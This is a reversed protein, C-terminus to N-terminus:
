ICIWFLVKVYEILWLWFLKFWCDGFGVLCCVLSEYYGWGRVFVGVM